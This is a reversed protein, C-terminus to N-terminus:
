RMSKRNIEASVRCSGVDRVADLNSKRRWFVYRDLQVDFHKDAVSVPAAKGARKAEHM